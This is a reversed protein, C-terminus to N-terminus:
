DGEDSAQVSTTKSYKRSEYMKKKSRRSGENHNNIM